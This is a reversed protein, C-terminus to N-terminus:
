SIGLSTIIAKLIKVFLWHDSHVGVVCVYVSVEARFLALKKEFTFMKPHVLQKLWAWQFGNNESDKLEM